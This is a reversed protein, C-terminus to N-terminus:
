RVSRSGTGGRSLRERFVGRAVIRRWVMSSRTRPQMTERDPSGMTAAASSFLVFMSLDLHETLEHLYWAANAKGALVRDVSDVTLSGIVGDDFRGATHVVGRLPLETPM